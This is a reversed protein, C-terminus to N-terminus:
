LPPPKSILNQTVFVQGKQTGCSNASSMSGHHFLGTSTPKTSAIIEARSLRASIFGPWWRNEIAIALPWLSIPFDSRPVSNPGCSERAKVKFGEM